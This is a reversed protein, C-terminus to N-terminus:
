SDLLRKILEENPELLRREKRGFFLTPVSPFAAACTAEGVITQRTTEERRGVALDWLVFDPKFWKAIEQATNFEFFTEHFDIRSDRPLSPAILKVVAASREVVLISEVEPNRVLHHVMLGLGLGVCLVNGGKIENCYIGMGLWHLPDDVMWTKWRPGERIQLGHVTTRKAMHFYEYGCLGEFHYMGSYRHHALRATGCTSKKSDTFPTRYNDPINLIKVDSM